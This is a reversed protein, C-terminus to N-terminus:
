PWHLSFFLLILVSVFLLYPILDGIKSELASTNQLRNLFFTTKLGGEGGGGGWDCTKKSREMLSDVLVRGCSEKAVRWAVNSVLHESNRMHRWSLPVTERTPNPWVLFFGFQVTLYRYRVTLTEIKKCCFISLILFESIWFIRVEFYGYCKTDFALM